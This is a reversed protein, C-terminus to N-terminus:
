VLGYNIFTPKVIHCLVHSISVDEEGQTETDSEIIVVGVDGVSVIKPDIGVFSVKVSDSADDYSTSSLNGVAFTAVVGGEGTSANPATTVQVFKANGGGGGANQVYLSSAGGSAPTYDYARVNTSSMPSAVQVRSGSSAATTNEQDLLPVNTISISQGGSGAITALNVVNQGNVVSVDSTVTMVKAETLDVGGTFWHQFTGDELREYHYTADMGVDLLGDQARAIQSSQTGANLALNRPYDTGRSDSALYYPDGSTRDYVVDVTVPISRKEAQSGVSINSIRTDDITVFSQPISIDLELGDIKTEIQKIVFSLDEERDRQVPKAKILQPFHSKVSYKTRWNESAVKSVNVSTIGHSISGYGQSGLTQDSFDDFSIGPLGVKSVEAHTAGQTDIKQSALFANAENSLKQVSSDAGQPEYNWPAFGEEVRVDLRSGTGSSWASPYSYGYRRSVKIPLGVSHGSAPNLEAFPVPNLLPDAFDGTWDGTLFASNATNLGSSQTLLGSNRPSNPDFCFNPFTVTIGKESSDWELFPSEFRTKASKWMSAKVPVFQNSADENWSEFKTPVGEGTIGWKTGSPMVCYAKIKNTTNSYFPSLLQYTGDINYGDEYLGSAQNEINCWAEGVVEIDDIFSYLSSDSKLIYTKGYHTEAFSKVKNYWNVIWSKDSNYRSTMQALYETAPVQGVFSGSGPVYGSTSIRNELDKEHAWYEISKLAASLEAETPSDEALSGDPGFYKITVNKWGAEFVPAGVTIGMDYSANFAGSTPILRGSGVIGEMEAGFLKVKNPKDAEDTGYKLHVTEATDGPFPINEKSISVSFRRNIVALKGEAMNWYVDYSVDGLIRTMATLFGESKLRWRYANADGPLQEEVVAPLPLASILGAVTGVTNEYYDVADYIQRYTAGDNAIKELERVNKSRGSTAPAVNVTNFWNYVDVMSTEPTDNRGHVGATDVFYYDLETRRDEVTISLLNGRNDKSYDAHTISGKILFDDISFDVLTGIAPLTDHDFSEPVYSLNFTHPTEGFGFSANVSSLFVGSGSGFLGSPSEILNTQYSTDIGSVNIIGSAAM